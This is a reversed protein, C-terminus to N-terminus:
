IKIRKLVISNNLFVQYFYLVYQYKIVNDTQKIDLLEVTQVLFLEAVDGSVWLM